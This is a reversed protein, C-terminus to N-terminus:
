HEDSERHEDMWDTLFRIAKAAHKEVGSVYVLQGRDASATDRPDPKPHFGRAQSSMAELGAKM